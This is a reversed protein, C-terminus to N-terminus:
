LNMFILESELVVIILSGCFYSKANQAVAYYNWEAKEGETNLSNQACICELMAGLLFIDWLKKSPCDLVKLKARM